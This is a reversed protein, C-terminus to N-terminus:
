AGRAFLQTVSVSAWDDKKMDGISPRPRRTVPARRRRDKEKKSKPSVHESNKLSQLCDAARDRHLDNGGYVELLKIISHPDMEKMFGVDTTRREKPMKDKSLLADNASHRRGKSEKKKTYSTLPASLPIDSSRREKKKHKSEIVSDTKTQRPSNM